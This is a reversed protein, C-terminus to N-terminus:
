GSLYRRRNRLKQFHVHCPFDKFSIWKQVEDGATINETSEGEPCNIGIRTGNTHAEWETCLITYYTPRDIGNNSNNNNLRTARHNVPQSVTLSVFLSWDSLWNLPIHPTSLSPSFPITRPWSPFLYKIPYIFLDGKLQKNSKEKWSEFFYDLVGGAQCHQELIKRLRHRPFTLLRWRLGDFRIISSPLLQHCM